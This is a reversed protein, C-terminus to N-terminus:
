LTGSQVETNRVDNCERGTNMGIEVASQVWPVVDDGDLFGYRPANVTLREQLTDDTAVADAKWQCFLKPTVNPYQRRQQRLVTFRNKAAM